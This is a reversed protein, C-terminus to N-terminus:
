DRLQKEMKEVITEYKEHILSKDFKDFQVLIADKEEQPCYEMCPFFFHKDEKAIHVPYFQSLRDLMTVISGLAKEDGAVYDEKADALCKVMERSAKHEEVLEDMITKLNDSLGKAALIRFLIDEEKGHHCRDAYMRYFEVATDIFVPNAKRNKRVEELERKMQAVMREILRHEKMLPAIPLM